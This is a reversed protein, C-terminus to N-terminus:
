GPVKEPDPEAAPEGSTTPPDDSPMALAFGTSWTRMAARWHNGDPRRWEELPALGIAVRRASEEEFDEVTPADAPIAAWVVNRIVDAPGEFHHVIAWNPIWPRVWMGLEHARVWRATVPTWGYFAEGGDDACGSVTIADLARTTRHAGQAADEFILAQLAERPVVLTYGTPSDDAAVLVGFSPMERVAYGAARLEALTKGVPVPEGRAAAQEAISPMGVPLPNWNRPPLRLEGRAADLEGQLKQVDALASALEAQLGAIRADRKLVCDITHGTVTLGSLGGCCPFQGWDNGM